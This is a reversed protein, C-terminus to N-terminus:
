RRFDHCYLCLSRKDSLSRYCNNKYLFEKSQHSCKVNHLAKCSDCEFTERIKLEYADCVCQSAVVGVGCLHGNLDIANKNYIKKIDTQHGRKYHENPDEKGQYSSM